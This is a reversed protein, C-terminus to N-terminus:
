LDLIPTETKKIEAAIESRIAIIVTLECVILFALAFGTSVNFYSYRLIFIILIENQKKAIRLFVLNLIM